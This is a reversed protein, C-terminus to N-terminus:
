KERRQAIHIWDVEVSGVEGLAMKINNELNHTLRELLRKGESKGMLVRCSNKKVGMCVIHEM